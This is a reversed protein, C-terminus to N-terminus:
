QMRAFLLGLLSKADAVDASQMADFAENPRMLVVEIADTSETPEGPQLDTALFLHMLETTFGPSTYFSSLKRLTGVRYGTEEVMERRVADEPTEGDDIGGAPIELLVREAAKRFQRVMVVRGDDLLPVVAIVESHEVIERDTTKGESLRVTDKRVTILGGSFVTESALTPEDEIAAL